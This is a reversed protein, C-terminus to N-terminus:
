NSEIWDLEIEIWNLEFEFWDFNFEFRQFEFVEPASGLCCKFSIDIWVSPWTSKLDIWNSELEISGLFCTGNWNM